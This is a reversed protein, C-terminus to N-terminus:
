IKKGAMANLDLLMMGVVAAKGVVCESVIARVVMLVDTVVAHISVGLIYNGHLCDPVELILCSLLQKMCFAPPWLSNM